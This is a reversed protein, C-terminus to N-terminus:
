HCENGLRRSLPQLGCLVNALLQWIQFKLLLVFSRCCASNYFCLIFLLLLLQFLAAVFQYFYVIPPADHNMNTHSVQLRSIAPEIYVYTYLLLCVTQPAVLHYTTITRSHVIPFFCLRGGRIM